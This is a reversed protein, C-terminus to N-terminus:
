RAERAYAELFEATELKGDRRAREIANRGQRDKLYPDAGYELLQKLPTTPQHWLARMLPTEGRTNPANPDAGARLLEERFATMEEYDWIVTMQLPTVGTKANRFEMAAGQALLERAIPVNRTAIAILLPSHGEADPADIDVGQALMQRLLERDGRRAANHLNWAPDDHLRIPEKIGNRELLDMIRQRGEEFAIQFPTGRETKERGNAGLWLLWQVGHENDRKVAWTLENYRDARVAFPSAKKLILFRRMDDLGGGLWGMTEMMPTRKRNDAVNPNAGLVILYFVVEDQGAAIARYLATRGREDRLDIPAGGRLFAELKEFDGRRAADHLSNKVFTPLTAPRFASHDGGAAFVYDEVLGIIRADGGRKAVALPQRDPPVDPVVPKAGLWLLREVVDPDHQLIAYLLPTLGDPAEYNVNAGALLLLRQLGVHRRQVAVLLPSYGEADLANVEAGRLILLLSYDMWGRRVAWHLPGRGQADRIADLPESQRELLRLFAPAREWPYDGTRIERILPPEEKEPEQLMGAGADGGTAAPSKQAAPLPTQAPFVMAPAARLKEQAIALGIGVVAAGTAGSVAIWRLRELWLRRLSARAVHLLRAGASESAALGALATKVAGFTQSAFREPLEAGIELAPWGGAAPWGRLTERLRNRARTLRMSIASASCGHRGALEEMSRGELYHGIVAERLRAPLRAIAEDLAGGAAAGAESLRERRGAEEERLRRRLAAKRLDLAVQRAVRHLWGGLGRRADLRGAKLALAMFTAQAAEEAEARDGLVRHAVGHVMLAHREVLAEFAAQSGEEHFKRLLFQDTASKM